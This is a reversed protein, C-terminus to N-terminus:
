DFLSLQVVKVPKPKHHVLNRTTPQSGYDRQPRATVKDLSRLLATTLKAEAKSPAICRSKQEKPEAESPQGDAPAGHAKRWFSYFAELSDTRLHNRQHDWHDEKFQQVLVRYFATTDGQKSCVLYCDDHPVNERTLSLKEPLFHHCIAGKVGAPKFKVCVYDKWQTGAYLSNDMVTGSYVSEAKQEFDYWRLFVTTGANMQMETM